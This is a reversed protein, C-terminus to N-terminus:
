SSDTTQSNSNFPDVAFHSSRSLFLFDSRSRANQLFCKWKEGRAGDVAREPVFKQHVRNRWMPACKGEACRIAGPLVGQLLFQCDRRQVPSRHQEAAELIGSRSSQQCDPLPVPPIKNSGCDDINLVENACVFVQSAVDSALVTKDDVPSALNPSNGRLFSLMSPRKFEGSQLTDQPNDKTEPMKRKALPSSGSEAPKVTRLLEQLAHKYDLSDLAYAIISSPESEHVVIPVVSRLISMQELNSLFHDDM